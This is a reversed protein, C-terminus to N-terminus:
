YITPIFIYDKSPNHFDSEIVLKRNCLTLVRDYPSKSLYENKIFIHFKM